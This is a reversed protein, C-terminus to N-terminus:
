KMLGRRPEWPDPLALSPREWFPPRGHRGRPPRKSRSLAVPERVSPRGQQGSTPTTVSDVKGVKWM